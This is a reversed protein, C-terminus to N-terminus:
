QWPAGTGDMRKAFPDDPGIQGARVPRGTFASAYLAAIFEVTVRTDALSVPPAAGADLADLVAALQATHGNGSTSPAGAWAATLHEHGPAPTVTWNDDTYGYLHDLEITAHAYDIRLASVQRPSVVSNVVSAVAGSAFTVVALSVDETDTPRSRRAAVATVQEWDGLISLLLDFQHIGHGMTPGGGETEWRGRWPLATYYADDRYWHTHCTALLPAGLDGDAALTRLRRIGPGFRQQFVTAVHAGTRESADILTDLEALSLTPPKELLVTVGAELCQLALATHTSPPTCVHVLDVDGTALLTPLNPAVTPVEWADAFARARAPDVDVVATLSIRSGLARLAEAHANAIAGTGVVAARYFEM